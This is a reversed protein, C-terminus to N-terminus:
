LSNNETKNITDKAKYFSKLKMLDWKNITSRLAQAMPTRNLFIEGTGMTNLTREWKRKEILNLRDLKVNLDKIWKSKLKRYSSLYMDIQMRRCASM